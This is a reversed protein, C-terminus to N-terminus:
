TPRANLNFCDVYIRWSGDPQRRYITLVKGERDTRTGEAKHRVTYTYNGLGFAYEGSERLERPAVAFREYQVREFASRFSAGIAQKGFVMPADPPMQTAGEDWLEM